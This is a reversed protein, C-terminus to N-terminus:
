RRWTFGLKAVLSKPSCNEHFAHDQPLKKVNTVKRIASLDIFVLERIKSKDNADLRVAVNGFHLDGHWCNYARLELCIKELMPLITPIFIDAKFANRTKNTGDDHHNIFDKLSGDYREWVEVGFVTAEFLQKNSRNGEGVVSDVGETVGAVNSHHWLRPCLPSKGNAKRKTYLLDFYALTTQLELAYQEITTKHCEEEVLLTLAKRKNANSTNLLLPDCGKDPIYANLPRVLVVVSYQTEGHKMACGTAIASGGRGAFDGPRSPDADIGWSDDLNIVYALSKPM